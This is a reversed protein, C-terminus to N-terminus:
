EANAELFFKCDDRTLCVGLDAELVRAQSELLPYCDYMLEDDSENLLLRLRELSWSDPLRYEVIVRETANDYGRLWRSVDPDSM